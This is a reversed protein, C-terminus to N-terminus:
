AQKSEAIINEIMGMVGGAGGAKKYEGFGPPPAQGSQMHTSAKVRALAAAKYVAELKKLAKALLKQTARQDTVTLQFDHNEKERNESAVKMQKKTEAIEKDAMSDQAKEILLTLDEIKTEMDDKRSHAAAIEKENTNLTDICVDRESVDDKQQEHLNAMLKDIVEKVKAFVDDKM